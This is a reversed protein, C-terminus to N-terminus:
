RSRPSVTSLSIVGALKGSIYEVLQATEPYAAYVIELPQLLTPEIVVVLRLFHRDPNGVDLENILVLEQTARISERDRRERVSTVYRERLGHTRSISRSEPIATDFHCKRRARARADSTVARADGKGRTVMVGFENSGAPIFKPPAGAPGAPVPLVSVVFSM